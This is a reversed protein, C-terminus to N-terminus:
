VPLRYVPVPVLATYVVPVRHAPARGGDPDQAICVVVRVPLVWRRADWASIDANEPPERRAPSLWRFVWVM